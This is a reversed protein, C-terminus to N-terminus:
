EAAKVEVSTTQNKEPQELNKAAETNQCKQNPHDNKFHYQM